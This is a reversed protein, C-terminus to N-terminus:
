KKVKKKPVPTVRELIEVVKDTLVKDEIDLIYHEKAGNYPFGESAGQLLQELEKLKKVFVCNNCVTFIPKENVYVLYEGFMKKYRIDYDGRIESCVFEIYENTTSM